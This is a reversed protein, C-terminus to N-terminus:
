HYFTHKTYVFSQISNGASTKWWFTTMSCSFSYIGGREREREDIELRAYEPEIGVVLSEREEGRREKLSDRRIDSCKYNFVEFTANLSLM